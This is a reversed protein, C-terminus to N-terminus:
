VFPQSKYQAKLFGFAVTYSFALLWNFPAKKPKQPISIVNQWQVEFSKCVFAMPIYVTPREATRERDREASRERDGGLGFQTILTAAGVVQSVVTRGRGSVGGAVRSGAPRM